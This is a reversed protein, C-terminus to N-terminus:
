IESALVEDFLSICPTGSKGLLNLLFNFSVARENKKEHRFSMLSIEKFTLDACNLNKLHFDLNDTPKSLVLTVGASATSWHIGVGDSSPNRGGGLLFLECECNPVYLWRPTGSKQALARSHHRAQGERPGPFPCCLVKSRECQSKLGGAQHKFKYIAM